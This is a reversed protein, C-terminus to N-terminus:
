EECRVDVSRRRTQLDGNALLLQEGSNRVHVHIRDGTNSRMANWDSIHAHDKEEGCKGKDTRRLEADLHNPKVVFQCGGERPAETEAQAGGHRSPAAPSHARM